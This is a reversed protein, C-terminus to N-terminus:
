SSHRSWDLMEAKGLGSAPSSLLGFEMGAKLKVSEENNVSDLGGSFSNGIISTTAVVVVGGVLIM